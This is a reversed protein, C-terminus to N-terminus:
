AGSEVPLNRHENGSVAQDALICDAITRHACDLASLNTRTISTAWRMFPTESSQALRAANGCSGFSPQRWEWFCLLSRSAIPM